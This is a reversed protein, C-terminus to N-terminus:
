EYEEVDIDSEIKKLFSDLSRDDQIKEKKKLENAKKLDAQAKQKDGLKEYCKSRTLFFM